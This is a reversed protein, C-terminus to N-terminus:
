SALHCCPMHVHTYDHLWTVALCTCLPTTMLGQSLLAHIGAAAGAFGTLLPGPRKLTGEEDKHSLLKKYADFATLEIAKSPM